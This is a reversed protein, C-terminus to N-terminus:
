PLHDGSVGANGGASASGGNGHGIDANGVVTVSADGVSVIAFSDGGAGAGGAGGNAGDVAMGGNSGSVGGADASKGLTCATTCATDCQSGPQGDTPASAKAGVGGSGGAGGNGGNGARVAGGNVTIKVGAGFAFIGVSSGGSQGAAGGGGGGGGCGPSGNLGCSKGADTDCSFVLCNVCSVCTAGSGASGNGGEGGPTGSVAPTSILGAQTASPASAPAGNVGAEPVEAAGQSCSAGPVAGPSGADGNLGVGGAGTSILVNDLELETNGTAYVGYISEGPGASKSGIAINKLIIKGGVGEADITVATAGVVNALQTPDNPNCVQGWTTGEVAWGGEVTLGVFSPQLTVTERYIGADGPAGTAVYILNSKAAGAAKLLAKGITACPLEMTGCNDSDTGVGVYAFTGNPDASQGGDVICRPTAGDGGGDALLPDPIGDEIGLISACAASAAAAGLVFLIPWRRM